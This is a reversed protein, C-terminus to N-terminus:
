INFEPKGTLVEILKAERSYEKLLRTRDGREFDNFNFGPAMTTGMLAFRGGDLLRSGQWWGGKICLQVKMSKEIEHGLIHRETKGYPGLALLEVPDGIYFHYIEDGKLRHLISCTDPTLLYFIATSVNREDPYKNELCDPTLISRSRYTEKCYGGEFLLPELGLFDIIQQPTSIRSGM